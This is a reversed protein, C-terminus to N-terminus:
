ELDKKIKKRDRFRRYTAFRDSPPPPIRFKWFMYVGLFILVIGSCLYIFQADEALFGTIYIVMALFGLFFFFAGIRSALAMLYEQSLEPQARVFGQLFTGEDNHCVVLSFTNGPL